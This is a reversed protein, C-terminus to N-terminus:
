PVINKIAGTIANKLGPNKTSNLLNKLAPLASSVKREGLTNVIQMQMFGPAGKLMSLICSNAAADTDPTQRLKILALYRVFFPTNQSAANIVIPEAAPLTKLSIARLISETLTPNNHAAQQQIVPLANNPNFAVLSGIAAGVQQYPLTNSAAISKVLKVASSNPLLKGLAEIAATSRRLSRSRAQTLFLPQLHPDKLAALQQILYAAVRGSQERSLQALFLPETQNNLGNHEATIKQAAAIRDLYAPAYHLIYPLEQASWHLHPVEKLLWHDPDLLVAAPQVSSPVQFSQTQEKLYVDIKKISGNPFILGLTVPTHFVPVGNILKQKQQIDAQVTHTDPQYSWTMNLVPHGPEFVWQHFFNALNIGTSASMSQQLELTNANKYQYEKLYNHLAKFFVKHGLRHYLMALVLAGKDYTTADFMVSPRAYFETVIPREYRHTEFLYGRLFSEKEALFANRGFAHNLYLADFFNAFGENLWINGWNQCTILDGFWQHALEHSTLSSLPYTGSRYDNLHNDLTTASVNEM